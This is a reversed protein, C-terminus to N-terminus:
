KGKFNPERKELFASTGEQKDESTYLVAQALREIVQGTRQDTEFGSQVALKALRAALPGKSLITRAMERAADMLDPQPVVRTALGISHAEDASILLAALGVVHPVSM